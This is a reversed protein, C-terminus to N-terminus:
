VGMMLVNTSSNFWLEHAAAGAAGQTSGSKLGYMLVGGTSTIRMKETATSHYATYFSMYANADVWSGSNDYWDNEKLVFISGGTVDNFSSGNNTTGRIGFNLVCGGRNDSDASNQQNFLGMGIPDNSSAAAYIPFSVNAAIGVGLRTFQASNGANWNATLAVSGDKKLASDLLANWLTSTGGATTIVGSAGMDLATAPAATRIGINGSTDITLYDNTGFATNKSIKFKDSDHNDIGIAYTPNGGGNIAFTMFPNGGSAGGVAINLLADSHISSNDTNSLSLENTSGANSNGIDLLCSPAKKIGINGSNNIEMIPSNNAYLYLPGSASNIATGGGYSYIQLYLGDGSDRGEIIGLVTLASSSHASKISVKDHITLDNFDSNLYSYTIGDSTKKSMAPFYLSSGIKHVQENNQDTLLATKSDTLNAWVNAFTDKIRAINENITSM